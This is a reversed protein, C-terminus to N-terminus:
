SILRPVAILESTLRLIEADSQTGRSQAASLTLAALATLQATFAKTSAVGIEPGAHIPMAIDAERAMTSTM